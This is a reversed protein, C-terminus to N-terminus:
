LTKIKTLINSQNKQYFNVRIVWRSRCYRIIIYRLIFVNFPLVVMISIWWNIGCKNLYVFTIISNLSIKWLNMTMKVV